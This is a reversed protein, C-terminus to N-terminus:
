HISGNDSEDGEGDDALSQINVYEANESDDPLAKVAKDVDNASIVGRTVNREVMRTDLKKSDVADHLLVM